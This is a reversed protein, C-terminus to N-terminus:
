RNIATVMDIYPVDDFLVEGNEIFGFKKYYKIKESDSFLRILNVQNCTKVIEMAQNILMAGYGLNRYKKLVAVRGIEAIHNKRYVVRVTAIATHRVKLIYHKAILDDINFDSIPRGLEDIFVRYRIQLYQCIASLNYPKVQKLSAPANETFTIM